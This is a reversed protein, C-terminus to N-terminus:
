LYNELTRNLGEELSIAPRWDFHKSIKSVDAVMDTIDGPRMQNDYSICITKNVLKALIQSVESLLYSKGYGVNYIEYKTPFRNLIKELLYLFDDIFLFDRKTLEGSLVVNGNKKTVQDLICYIFSNPRPYPGYVYFPRLTVINMGFDHSYYQCLQEALLKSENYPSHPYVPHSEDIPLYHPQGYVYTSINIFKPVKKQRAFELLNLTGVLNTYFIDRPFNMSSSISTKAALHIVAGVPEKISLLRSMDTIDLTIAQDGPSDYQEILDIGKERLYKCLHGGIFGRAGSVLVKRSKKM